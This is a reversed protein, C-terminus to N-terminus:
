LKVFQTKSKTSGCFGQRIDHSTIEKKPLVNANPQQIEIKRSIEYNKNMDMLFVTCADFNVKM